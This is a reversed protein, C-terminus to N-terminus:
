MSAESLTTMQIGISRCVGYRVCLSLSVCVCVCVCGGGGVCVCVCLSYLHVVNLPFYVLILLLFYYSLFFIMRYTCNVVIQQSLSNKSLFNGGYKKLRIASIGDSPCACSLM